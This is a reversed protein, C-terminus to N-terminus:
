CLYESSRLTRPLEDDVTCTYLLAASPHRDTLSSLLSILCDVKSPIRATKSCFAEQLSSM